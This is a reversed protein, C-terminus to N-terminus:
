SEDDLVQLLQEGPVYEVCPCHLQPTHGSPVNAAESPDVVQRAHAGPVVEKPVPEIPHMAHGIFECGLIRPPHTQAAPNVAAGSPSQMAIIGGFGDIGQLLLGHWGPSYKLRLKFVHTLHALPVNAGTAAHSAHVM